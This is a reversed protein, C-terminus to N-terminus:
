QMPCYWIEQNGKENELNRPGADRPIMAGWHMMTTVWGRRNRLLGAPRARGGLAGQLGDRAHPADKITWWSKVYAVM